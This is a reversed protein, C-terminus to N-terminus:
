GLLVKETNQAIKGKEQKEEEDIRLVSPWFFGLNWHEFDKKNECRWHSWFFLLDKRIASYCGMNHEFDHVQAGTINANLM